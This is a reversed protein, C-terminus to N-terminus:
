DVGLMEELKLSAKIDNHNRILIDKKKKWFHECKRPVTCNEIVSWAARIGAAPTGRFGFVSNAAEAVSMGLSITQHARMGPGTIILVGPQQLVFTMQLLFEEKAFGAKRLLIEHVQYGSGELYKKEAAENGGLEGGRIMWLKSSGIYLQNVSGLAADEVHLPTTTAHGSIIGATTTVGLFRGLINDTLETTCSQRFSATNISTLGPVDTTRQPLIGARPSDCGGKGILGSSREGHVSKHLAPRMKNQEIVSVECGLFDQGFCTSLDPVYMAVQDGGDSGSTFRDARWAHTAAAYAVEQLFEDSIGQDSCASRAFLHLQSLLSGWMLNQWLVKRFQAQTSISKLGEMFPLPQVMADINGFDDGLGVSQMTVALTLDRISDSSLAACMDGVQQSGSGNEIFVTFLGSLGPDLKKIEQEILEAVVEKSLPQRSTSADITLLPFRARLIANVVGQGVSLSAESFAKPDTCFRRFNLDATSAKYPESTSVNIGSLNMDSRLSEEKKLVWLTHNSAQESLTFCLSNKGFMEVQGRGVQRFDGSRSDQHRGSSSPLRSLAELHSLADRVEQLLLYALSTLFTIPHHHNRFSFKIHNQWSRLLVLGADNVKLLSENLKREEEVAQRALAPDSGDVCPM